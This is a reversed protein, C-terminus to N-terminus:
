SFCAFLWARSACLCALIARVRASLILPSLVYTTTVLSDYHKQIHSNSALLQAARARFGEASEGVMAQAAPRDDATDKAEGGGGGLPYELVFATEERWRVLEDQQTAPVALAFTAADAGLLALSDLNESAAPADEGAGGDQNHGLEKVDSVVQESFSGLDERVVEAARQLLGWMEGCSGLALGEICVLLAFSFSLFCLPFSLCGRDFVFPFLKM